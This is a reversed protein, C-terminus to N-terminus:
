EDNGERCQGRLLRFCGFSVSGSTGFPVVNLKVKLLLLTKGPVVQFTGACSAPRERM